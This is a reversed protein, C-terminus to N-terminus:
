KWWIRSSSFGCPAKMAERSTQVPDLRLGGCATETQMLIGKMARWNRQPQEPLTLKWMFQQWTREKHSSFLANSQKDILDCLAARLSWWCESLLAMRRMLFRQKEEYQLEHTLKNKRPAFHSNESGLPTHLM